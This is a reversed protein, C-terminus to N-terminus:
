IREASPITSNKFSLKISRNLIWTYGRSPKLELPYVNHIRAWLGVQHAMDNPSSAIYPSQIQKDYSQQAIEKYIQGGQRMNINYCM